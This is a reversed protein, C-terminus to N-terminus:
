GDAGDIEAMWARLLDCHDCEGPEHEPYPHPVPEDAAYARKWEAVAQSTWESAHKDWECPHRRVTGDSNLAYAKGCVPCFGYLGSGFTGRGDAKPRKPSTPSM